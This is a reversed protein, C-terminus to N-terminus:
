FAGHRNQSHKLALSMLREPVANLECVLRFLLAPISVSPKDAVMGLLWDLNSESIVGGPQERWVLFEVMCEVLYATWETDAAVHARDALLLEEAEDRDRLTVFSRSDLPQGDASALPLRIEPNNDNSGTPKAPIRALAVM